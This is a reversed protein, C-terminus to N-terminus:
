IIRINYGGGLLDKSIRYCYIIIMDGSNIIKPLAVTVFINVSYCSIICYSFHNFAKLVLSESFQEFPATGTPYSM